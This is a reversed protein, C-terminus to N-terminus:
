SLSALSFEFSSVEWPTAQLTRPALAVPEAVPQPLLADLAIRRVRDPLEVLLWRDYALYVDVADVPWRLITKARDIPEGQLFRNALEPFVVLSRDTLVILHGSASVISYATGELADFVLTEPTPDGLVDRTLLITRDIGIAAAALPWDPSRLSCVSVVDLGPFVNIRGSGRGPGLPDTMGLLGGKRLACAFVDGLGASGLYAIKYFNQIGCNPTIVRHSRRGHPDADLLLLGGVGLAAIFGGASTSAVGHAGGEYSDGAPSLEGSRRDLRHLTVDARTSACLLDGAIAIGNIAEGSETLQHARAEIAPSQPAFTVLYGNETGFCLGENWPCEGAWSVEFGPFRIVDSPVNFDAKTTSAISM